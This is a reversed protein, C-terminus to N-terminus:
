RRPASRCHRAGSNRSAAIAGPNIAVSTSPTIPSCGWLLPSTRRKPARRPDEARGFPPSTRRVPHAGRIQVRKPAFNARSRLRFSLRCGFGPCRRRFRALDREIQGVLHSLPGRLPATEDHFPSAGRGNASRVRALSWHRGVPGTDLSLVPLASRERDQRPTM